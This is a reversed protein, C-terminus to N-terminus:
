YIGNFVKRISILLEEAGKLTDAVQAPSVYAGQDTQIGPTLWWARTRAEDGFILEAIAIASAITATHASVLPNAIQANSAALDRYAGDLQPPLPIHERLRQLSRFPMCQRGDALDTANAMPLGLLRALQPYVDDPLSSLKKM